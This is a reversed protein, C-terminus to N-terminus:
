PGLGSLPMVSGNGFGNPRRRRAGEWKYAELIAGRPSWVLPKNLWRCALLAPITLFSYTATLHVVDAWRVLPLLRKLLGCSVCARAVRRTFNVEQNPYFHVLNGTALRDSLRPGASDTTLVKLEMDPLAALANNLAYVSFIPGGWYTAPYYSPTSHLVRM